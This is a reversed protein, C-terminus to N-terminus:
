IHSSRTLDLLLCEHKYLLKGAATPVVQRGMRDFLRIGVMSELTAIRERVSVQALFVANTAKSFSELELVKYFIELQRLDFDVSTIKHPEDKKM